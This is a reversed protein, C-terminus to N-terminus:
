TEEPRDLWEHLHRISLGRKILLILGLVSWFLIRGKRIIALTVGIGAAMALSRGVFRAGAEDVGILFPVLKFVVTILRSVSELLFAALVNSSGTLRWLIYWGETIGLVHYLAEFFCVPIFRQPYEHYFGYILDEFRRVDLRGRELLRRLFGKEYLWNCVWSALHWRRIVMTVGLVILVSLAGIITDITAKLDPVIDFQLLMVVAGAILFLGTIFSYFLNETAVSSFAVTLPIRDRVVLAKSTGSALLGLPITSSLAEGIIVAPVTDRLQLDYPPHVSLKWAYARVVIRVFYLALIVAFGAWGFRAIGGLIEDIGVAYILYGFLVVGLITLVVAALKLRGLTRSPPRQSEPIPQM